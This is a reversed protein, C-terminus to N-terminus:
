YTPDLAADLRARLTALRERPENSFVFRLYSPAVRSGWTTMSTAAVRGRELLRRSLEDPSLGCFSTDLLMSWGGDPVVVPLGRLQELLVDRRRQWEEVAAVVGADDGELAVTVGRQAFGSPVVTNNIVTLAIDAMVPRPGVLWGVRWGIMRYEKAASGVTITRDALEPLSAPHMFRQGDFLIREMAADYVLWAGHRECASAIAQWERPTFVVGSPLSPSMMLLIRTRDGIAAALEDLDLRWRGDVVRLPVPRPVGGALHIRNVFGPYVPDTVVVEDGDDLMALLTALVGAMGGSTIVVEDAPDYARGTQADLRKAVATRLEPRGTFPLYSNADDTGVSDRTAAIAAPAPPIDTDINELRLIDAAVQGSEAIARIGLPRLHALRKVTM